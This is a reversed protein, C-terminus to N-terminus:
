SGADRGGDAAADQEARDMALAQVVPQGTRLARETESVSWCFWVSRTCHGCRRVTPEATEQLLEWRRPCRVGHGVLNCHEIWGRQFRLLWDLPIMKRLERFRAKLRAIERVRQLKSRSDEEAPPYQELLEELRVAVRFFQGRLDGREELWDAFALRATDDRPAALIVATFADEETM